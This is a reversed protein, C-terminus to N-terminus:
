EPKKLEKRIKINKKIQWIIVAILALAVIILSWYSILKGVAGSMSFSNKESISFKFEKELFLDDKHYFSLEASYKGEEWEDARAQIPSIEHRSGPNVAPEEEPYPYIIDYVNKNDKKIKLRVQPSMSVNGQNDYIIRISLPEGINLDYDGPIVSTNKLNIEEKGSVTVAVLRDIKQLVAAGSEEREIVGDSISSVSIAGKYEANAADVPIDLIAIVRFTGQAPITATAIRSELDEPLFFKAWEKIQGDASFKVAMPQKDSNVAIIEQQIKEGRLANKIIIPETMQGLAFVFKPLLLLSLAILLIQCKKM